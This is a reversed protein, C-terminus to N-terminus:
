VSYLEIFKYTIGVENVNEWVGSIESVITGEFMNKYTGEGHKKGNLIGGEYISHPTEIRKYQPTGIFGPSSWGSSTSPSAPPTEWGSFASVPPPPYVTLPKLLDLNEPKKEEM